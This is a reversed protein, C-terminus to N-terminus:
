PFVGLIPGLGVVPPKRQNAGVGENEEELDTKWGQFLETDRDMPIVFAVGGRAQRMSIKIWLNRHMHASEAAKLIGALVSLESKFFGEAAEVFSRLPKQLGRKIEM